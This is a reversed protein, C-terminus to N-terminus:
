PTTLPGPSVEEITTTVVYRVTLSATVAGLSEEPPTQPSPDLSVTCPFGGALETGAKHRRTATGRGDAYRRASWTKGPGPQKAVPRPIDGAQAKVHAKLV